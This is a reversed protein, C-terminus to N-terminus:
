ADVNVTLIVGRKSKIKKLAGKILALIAGGDSGKLHIAFRYQDRLKARRDPQPDSIEIEGASPEMADFLATIYALADEEKLSRAVVDIVHGFPPFGLERRHELEDRYFIRSDGKLFSQFVYHDMLYTQVVCTEKSMLQMTKLLRYAQFGSRWDFRTLESDLNLVATLDVRVRQRWRLFAQTVIYIDARPDYGDSDRDYCCIKAYPFYRALESEIKEIGKGMSKLYAGQCRPCKKPLPGTHNCHRCVLQQKSPLYVLSVNCRPCMLVAECRHCRTISSSGRRNLFLLVQGKRELVKQVRSQLPFSVISSRRPNFNTMDVRQLENQHERPYYDIQWQEERAQYWTQASPTASMFALQCSEVERRIEAIKKVHYQPTQEQKYAPHEEESVVILGLNPVPAFVTSRTGVVVRVQGTKMRAWQLFEKKPTLSKDGCVAIETLAYQRQLQEVMGKVRYVDPVLIIVGQQREIAADILAFFRERGKRQTEDHVLVNKLLSVNKSARDGPLGYTQEVKKTQRLYVPLCSMLAEGWSCGYYESMKKTVALAQRDLVPDQDLVASLAKLGKVTSDAKLQVIVGLMVRRGFSVKVRQGVRATPRSDDPVLYDFPGPVAIGVVVQAIKNQSHQSMM